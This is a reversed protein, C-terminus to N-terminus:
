AFFCEQREVSDYVYYFSTSLAAFADSSGLGRFFGTVFQTNEAVSHVKRTGDDLELALGVSRPNAADVVSSQLPATRRRMRQTPALAAATALLLAARM